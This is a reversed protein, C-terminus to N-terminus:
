YGREIDVVNYLEQGAIYRKINEAFFAIVDDMIRASIGSTHPTIILNPISWFPHEPPLPEQSFVDLMASGIKGSRLTRELAEEDILDGRSVNVLGAGPKMADLMDASFLHDTEHTLPLTLVVFDCEKLMGKLGEIPYLRRFYNGMPDGLGKPTYGTDEPHMVDHKAALVTVGMPYLLRAVERGISGYGVIGVTSGRLERPQLSKSQNSGWKHERQLAIIEPMKHGLMLLAMIVYEGMTSIMVGSASTTVVDPEHVIPADLLPDVGAFSVQIWRLNPAEERTPLHYGNTFLVESRSWDEAPVPAGDKPVTITLHINKDVAQILNIQTETLPITSLIEITKKDSM